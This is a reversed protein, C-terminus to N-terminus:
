QNQEQEEIEICGFSEMCMDIYDAETTGHVDWDGFDDISVNRWVIADGDTACGSAIPGAGFHGSGRSEPHELDIVVDFGSRWRGAFGRYAAAYCARSQEASLIM